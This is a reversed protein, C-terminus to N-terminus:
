IEAVIHLKAHTGVHLDPNEFLGPAQNQKKKKEQQTFISVKVQCIFSKRTFLQFIEM